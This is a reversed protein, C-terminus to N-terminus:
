GLRGPPWTCRPAGYLGDRDLVALAPQGLAAARAVLAEAHPPKSSRSRLRLM